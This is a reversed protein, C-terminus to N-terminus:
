ALTSGPRRVHTVCFRPDGGPGCRRPRGPAAAGRGKRAGVSVRGVCPRTMNCTGTRSHAVGGESWNQLHLHAMNRFRLLRKSLAM